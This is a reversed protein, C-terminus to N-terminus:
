LIFLSFFYLRGTFREARSSAYIIFRKASLSKPMLSTDVILVGDAPVFVCFDKQRM